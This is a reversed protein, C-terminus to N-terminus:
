LRKEMLMAQATVREGRYPKTQGTAEFGMRAWFGSVPNTAVVALRLTHVHLHKRAFQEAAQCLARGFGSGQANQCIALLGIFATGSTPYGNTLHLLGIARVDRKALFAHANHSECGLPLATVFASAADERKPVGDVRMSYTTLDDFIADVERLDDSTVALLSIPSQYAM